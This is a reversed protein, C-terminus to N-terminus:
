PATEWANKVKRLWQAAAASQAIVALSLIILTEFGVNMVRALVTTVVVILALLGAALIFLDLQKASFYYLVAATFVIYFLPSIFSEGHYHSDGSALIFILTSIVIPMLAFVTIIRPFSRGAMWVVGRRSFWEWIVLAGTNLAFVWQALAFDTLSFTIGAFPGLLSAVFNRWDEPHVIQTWYLILSLNLLILLLLWLGGNRNIMAWGSILVAWTFFLGYPDAGTQYTQGYVALLVGTLVAAAFLATKGALSDMGKIYAIVVGAVLAVEVLAFKAFKHLDAWNYAFFAMVGVLALTAGGILLLRDVFGLWAANDPKLKALVLARQQATESLELENALHNLRRATVPIDALKQQQKKQRM